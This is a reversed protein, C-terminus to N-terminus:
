YVINLVPRSDPYGHDARYVKRENTFNWWQKGNGSHNAYHVVLWFQDEVCPDTRYGILKEHHNLLEPGTQSKLQSLNYYGMDILDQAFKPGISPITQFEILAHLQKARHETIDLMACLEDTAYDALQTIKIGAKKVSSKEDISLNLKATKM